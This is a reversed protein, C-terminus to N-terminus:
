VVTADTKEDYNIEATVTVKSLELAPCEGTSKSNDKDETGHKQCGPHLPFPFRDLPAHEIRCLTDESDSNYSPNSAGGSGGGAGGGGCWGPWPEEVTPTSLQVSLPLVQETQVAKDQQGRFFCDDGRDGEEPSPEVKRFINRAFLGICFMEVIVCYHYILQSRMLASFPPTCPVVNLAGMTELIGSQLGCLVLVVIICVFKARLGYGHLASKTAKYFLLYGYFSLFTSTGIIANVYMNPNVVEVEGYDYQEDTWLVLTLFFLITRVVSLQLVAAMMWGLSTRTIGIMPLCCCFCCPFPNPSVQAGALAEVMRSKGGFFDTILGMFKLLTISHYLAAIFNCLSSSRPIYLAIISTLGFVPYMGLIWLYLRRRRSSPVHRLFFGLEELFLALLLLALVAPILFLWLENKIVRFFESSLPIEAGVWTCNGRFGM